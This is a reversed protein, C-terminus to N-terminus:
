NISINSLDSDISIRKNETTPKFALPISKVNHNM